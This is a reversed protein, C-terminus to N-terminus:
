IMCIQIISRRESLKGVTKSASFEAGIKLNNYLLTILIIIFVNNIKKRKPTNHKNFTGQLQEEDVVNPAGSM